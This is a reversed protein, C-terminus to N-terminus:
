QSAQEVAPIEVSIDEPLVIQSKESEIIVLRYSVQSVNNYIDFVEIFIEQVNELNVVVAFEFDSDVPTVPIIQGNVTLLQIPSEDTIKGKITISRMNDPILIDFGNPKPDILTLEPARDERYLEFIQQNAFKTITEKEPHNNAITLLNQYGELATKKDDSKAYVDAREGIVQWNDPQLKLVFDFDKIAEKPRNTDRYYTGRWYHADVNDPDVRIVESVDDIADTFNNSLAFGRSRAILAEKSDPDIRLATEAAELAERVKNTNIAIDALAIYAEIFGKDIKTAGQYAWQAKLWIKMKRYVEGQFFYTMATEAISLTYDSMKLAADYQHLDLLIQIKIHYAPLHKSNLMTARNLSEMANPLQRNMYQNRGLRFWLNEEEPELQTLRMYDAVAKDYQQLNEYTEARVKLLEDSDPHDALARSLIEVAKDPQDSLSNAIQLISDVDQGRAAVACIYLLVIICTRKM